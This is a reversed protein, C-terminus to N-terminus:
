NRARGGSLMISAYRPLKLLGRDWTAYRAVEGFSRLKDTLPLNAHRVARIYELGRRLLPVRDHNDPDYWLAYERDSTAMTWSMGPHLRRIFLPEEIEHIQGQLAIESVLVRDASAFSGLGRTRAIASRRAVGFLVHSPFTGFYGRLRQHPRDQRLHCQNSMDGSTSRGEGDIYRAGTYCLVVAPNDRLIALCRAVYSPDHLDDHAAWKFFEAQGQNFVTNFNWAAGRNVKSRTFRIRKDAAAHRECIQATRDTSGNDSIFLTFDEFSQARLSDLAESLYNEGNYVPLGIDLAAL